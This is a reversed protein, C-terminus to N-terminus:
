CTPSNFTHNWDVIFQKYHREAVEGFGPLSTGGPLPLPAITPNTQLFM